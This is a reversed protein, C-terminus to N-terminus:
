DKSLWHMTSGRKRNSIKLQNGWLRYRSDLKPPTLWQLLERLLKRSYLLKKHYYSVRLYIKGDEFCCQEPQADSDVVIGCIDIFKDEKDEVMMLKLVNFPIFVFTPFPM